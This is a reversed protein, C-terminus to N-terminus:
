KKKAERELIKLLAEFIRDKKSKKRRSFFRM